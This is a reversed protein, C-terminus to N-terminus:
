PSIKDEREGNITVCQGPYSAESLVVVVRQAATVEIRIRENM